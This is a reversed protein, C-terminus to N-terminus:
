REHTEERNMRTGARFHKAKDLAAFLASAHDSEYTQTLELSQLYERVLRSVSSNREAAAIRARRYTAEDVSVTINKM